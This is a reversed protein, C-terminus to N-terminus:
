GGETRQEEAPAQYSQLKDLSSLAPAAYCDLVSKLCHLIYLQDAGVAVATQTVMEAVQEDTLSSQSAGIIDAIMENYYSM